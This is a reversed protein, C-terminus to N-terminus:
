TWGLIKGNRIERGGLRCEPTPGSGGNEIYSLKWGWREGAERDIM